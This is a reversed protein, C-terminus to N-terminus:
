SPEQNDPNTTEELEPIVTEGFIIANCTQIAETVIVMSQYCGNAIAVAGGICSAPQDITPDCSIFGEGISEACQRHVEDGMRVEKVFCGLWKLSKSKDTLGAEEAISEPTYDVLGAFCNSGFSLFGFLVLSSLFFNKLM